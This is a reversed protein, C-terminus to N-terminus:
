ATISGCPSKWGYQRHAISGGFGGRLCERLLTQLELALYPLVV